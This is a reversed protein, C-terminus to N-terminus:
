SSEALTTYKTSGPQMFPSQRDRQRANEQRLPPAQSAMDCYLYSVSTSWQGNSRTMPCNLLRRSVLSIATSLQFSSPNQRAQYCTCPYRLKYGRRTSVFLPQRWRQKTVQSHRRSTPGYRAQMHVTTKFPNYHDKMKTSVVTVSVCSLYFFVSFCQGTDFTTSIM